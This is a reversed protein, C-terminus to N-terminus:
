NPRVNIMFMISEWLGQQSVTQQLSLCLTIVIQSWTLPLNIKPRTLHVTQGELIFLFDNLAITETSWRSDKLHAVKCEGLGVWAYKGTAPNVLRKFTLELPNLLVSSGCNTPDVLLIKQDRESRQYSVTEACRKHTLLESSFQWWQFNCGKVCQKEIFNM